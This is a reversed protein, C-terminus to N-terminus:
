GRFAACIASAHRRGSPLPEDRVRQIAMGDSLDIEICGMSALEFLSALMSKATAKRDVLYAVVGANLNDPYFGPDLAAVADSRRVPCLAELADLFGNSLTM